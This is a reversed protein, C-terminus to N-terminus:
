TIMESVWLDLTRSGDFPDCKELYRGVTKSKGAMKM